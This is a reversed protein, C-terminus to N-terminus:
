FNYGDKNSGAGSALVWIFGTIGLGFAIRTGGTLFYILAAIGIMVLGMVIRLVTPLEFWFDFM